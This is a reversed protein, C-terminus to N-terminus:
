SVIGEATIEIWRASRDHRPVSLVKYRMQNVDDTLVDGPRIQDTYRLSIGYEARADLQNRGDSIQRVKCWLVAINEYDDTFGGGDDRYHAPRMLVLRHRLESISTM